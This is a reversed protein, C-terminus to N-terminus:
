LATPRALIEQPLESDGGCRGFLGQLQGGRDFRLGEIEIGPQGSLGLRGFLDGQQGGQGLFFFLM